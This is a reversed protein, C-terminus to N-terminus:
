NGIQRLISVEFSERNQIIEISSSYHNEPSQKSLKEIMNILFHQDEVFTYNSLPDIIVPIFNAIVSVSIKLNKYRGPIYFSIEELLCSHYAKFNEEV